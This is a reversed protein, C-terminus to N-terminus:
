GERRLTKRLATTEHISAGQKLYFGQANRTTWEMREAGHKASWEEAAEFLRQGIGKGRIAPDSSVILYDLYSKRRMPHTMLNVTATGALRLQRTRAVFLASRENYIVERLLEESVPSGDHDPVLDPIILGIEAALDPTYARVEDVSVEINPM